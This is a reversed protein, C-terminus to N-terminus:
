GRCRISGRSPWADADPVPLFPLGMAAARFRQVVRYGDHEMWDLTGGEIGRKIAPMSRVRGDLTIAAFLFEVKRAAGAAVLIEAPLPNPLSVVHLGQRGQRVLEFILAMPARGLMCGGPAVSANDPVSAAAEALDV